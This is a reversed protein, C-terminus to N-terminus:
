FSPSQVGKRKMFLYPPAPTDRMEVSGGIREGKKFQLLKWEEKGDGEM